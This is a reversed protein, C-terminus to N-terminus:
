YKITESYNDFEIVVDNAKHKCSSLSGTILVFLVLLVLFIFRQKM